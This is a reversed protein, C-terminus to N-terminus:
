NKKRLKSELFSTLCSDSLLEKNQQSILIWSSEPVKVNLNFTKLKTYPLVYQKGRQNGLQIHRSYIYNFSIKRHPQKKISDVERLVSPRKLQGVIQM